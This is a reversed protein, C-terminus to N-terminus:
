AGRLARWIQRGNLRQGYVLMAARFVRGVALTAAALAIVSLGMAALPQWLPVSGFGQRFLVVTPATMPFLTLGVALPSDPTNLLLPLIWFPLFGMLSLLSALQQSQQDDGAIVGLGAALMAYLLYSPVGLGVAWLLSGWPVVALSVQGTSALALWGAGAGCVTWVTIQSLTMLSLGLVKGAGLAEPRLSTIVIEMARQEKEQVITSGMQSVGTVVALSFMIGLLVPFLVRAVMGAGDGVALGDVRGVYTVTAPQALRQLLWDPAGPLQAQRLWYRLAAKMTETPEADSYYALDTGFAYDDPVVVYAGIEGSEFAAQAASLSAYASLRLSFEDTAVRDVPELIGSQDVYGVAPLDGSGERLWPLAGAIVMLVPVGFTLILFTSSRIHRAFTIRAVLWIKSM